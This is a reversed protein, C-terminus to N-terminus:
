CNAVTLQYKYWNLTTCIVHSKKQEKITFYNKKKKKPQSNHM